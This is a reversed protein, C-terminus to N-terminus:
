ITDYSQGFLRNWVQFLPPALALLMDRVTQRM